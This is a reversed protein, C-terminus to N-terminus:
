DPHAVPLQGQFVIARLQRLGLSEAEEDVEIGPAKNWARAVTFEVSGERGHHVSVSIWLSAKRGENAQLLHKTVTM